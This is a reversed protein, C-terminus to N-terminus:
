KVCYYNRVCPHRVQLNYYRPSWPHRIIGRMVPSLYVVKNQVSMQESHSNSSTLRLADIVNAASTKLYKKSNKLSFLMPCKMHIMQRASSECSIGFRTKELFYNLFFSLIDDAPTTSSVKFTLRILHGTEHGFQDYYTCPSSAPSFTRSNFEWLARCKSDCCFVVYYISCQHM